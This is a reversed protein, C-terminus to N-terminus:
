HARLHTYSVPSAIIWDFTIFGLEIARQNHKISELIKNFDFSPEASRTKIKKRRLDNVVEVTPLNKAAAYLNWYAVYPEPFDPRQNKFFNFLHHKNGPDIKKFAMKPSDVDPVVDISNVSAIAELENGKPLVSDSDSDSDAKKAKTQKVFFANAKKAKNQKKQDNLDGENKPRGGSKGAESRKQRISEYRVLDRKLTCKLPEFTLETIRDPPEPNLDNVYRFFHKILKGAENDSLKEFVNIWDIYVVVTKKGEAM